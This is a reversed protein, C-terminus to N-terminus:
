VASDDRALPIIRKAFWGARPPVRQKGATGAGCAFLLDRSQSSRGSRPCDKESPM